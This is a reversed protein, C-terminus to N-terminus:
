GVDARVEEGGEVDVQCTGREGLGVEGGRRRGRGDGFGVELVAAGAGRLAVDALVLAAALGVIPALGVPRGKRDVLGLVPRITVRPLNSPELDTCVPQQVQHLRLADM